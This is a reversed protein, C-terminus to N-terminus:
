RWDGILKFVDSLTEKEYDHPYGIAEMEASEWVRFIKRENDYSFVWGNGGATDLWVKAEDCGVDFKIFGM